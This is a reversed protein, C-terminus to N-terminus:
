GISVGSTPRSRSSISPSSGNSASSEGADKFGYAKVIAPLLVDLDQNTPRLAVFAEAQDGLLVRFGDLVEKKVWLDGVEVPCEVPLTFERGGFVFTKPDGEAELRAARAADLDAIQSM